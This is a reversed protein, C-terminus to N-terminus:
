GSGGSRRDPPARRLSRFSRIARPEAVGSGIAAPGGARHASAIFGPAGESVFDREHVIPLDFTGGSVTLLAKTAEEELNMRFTGVLREETVETFSVNGFVLAYRGEWADSGDWGFTMAGESIAHSRASTIWGEVRFHILDFLGDDRSRAGLVDQANDDFDHITYAWQEPTGDLRFSESVSFTGTRDGDYDFVLQAIVERAEVLVPVQVPPLNGATVTIVVQGPSEGVVTGDSVSAIEPASSVWRIAHEEPTPIFPDGHPDVVLATLSATDNVAIALSPPHVDLATPVRPLTADCAILLLPLIAVSSRFM